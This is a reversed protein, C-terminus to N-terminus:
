GVLLQRDLHMDHVMDGFSWRGRLDRQDIPSGIATNRPTIDPNNVVRKGISMMNINFTNTIMMELIYREACNTTNDRRLIARDNGDHMLISEM